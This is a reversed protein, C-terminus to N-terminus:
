DKSKSSTVKSKRLKCKIHTMCNLKFCFKICTNQTVQLYVKLKKTLNPCWVNCGYDFNPQILANCLRRHRYASIGITILPNQKKM